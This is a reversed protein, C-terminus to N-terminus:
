EGSLGVPIKAGPKMGPQLALPPSKQLEAMIANVQGWPLTELTRLIAQFVNVPVAFHTAQVDPPITEKTGPPRIGPEGPFGPPLRSPGNNGAM